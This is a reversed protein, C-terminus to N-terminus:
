EPNGTGLPERKGFVAGVGIGGGISWGFGAAQRTEIFGSLTFREKFLYSSKLGFSCAYKLYTGGTKRNKIFDLGLMNAYPSIDWGYKPTIHYSIGDPLALLAIGAVIGFGGSDTTDSDLSNVLGIGFLVPAGLIGMTLHINRLDDQRTVYDFNYNIGFKNKFLFEANLSYSNYMVSQVSGVGARGYLHFKYDTLQAFSGFSLAAFVILLISRKM